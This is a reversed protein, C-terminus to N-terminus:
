RWIWSQGAMAAQLRSLMTAKPFPAGAALREVILEPTCPLGSVPDVYRPYAILTAWVLQELTPRASRRECTPGLDETLGWGAYFPTGLCTVSVGRMLAEFGMLSTMTWIADSAEILEVASANRAAHDALESLDQDSVTGPRLGAEVDPHPKYVLFADPNAARAARLLGLNTRVDGAGLRISADDEVQGPVLVLSRDSPFSLNTEAGVNYKTLRADRIAEKLARARESDAAGRAADAILRELDSARTPDYYIGSTDFVLSAAQTLEAGLGVSRLFGDEVYGTGEPDNASGHSAWLWVKRDEHKHIENARRGDLTFKPPRALKPRFRMVNRRKWLRVGGFVEGTAGDPRQEAEVLCQLIEAADEFSCLQKRWPDVYVPYALHCGAFLSTRSQRTSRRRVVVEDETLGWGSYFAAGFCRVPKGALVAEYGLQSSVTYVAVAGEIADWPNIESTLHTDDGADSQNFHGQKHGAIVDPHSKVIIRRGPHEARAAHLMRSFAGADVMAGPISADGRTQDVVLVYGPDLSRRAVPPTYKSLRADRLISIGREARETDDLEACGNQLLTELRSTARADYYIGIDDLIISLPPVRRDGPHVSRLFGDEITLLRAGTLRSIARGRWSVPKQGWVGIAGDTGRGPFGFRPHWGASRLVDRLGSQTLFGGSFVYLPRKGCKM